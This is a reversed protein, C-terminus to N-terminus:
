LEFLQRANLGLQEMILVTTKKQLKAIQEVFSIIQLPTNRKDPSNYPAMSPSDTEILFHKIDVETVTKQLKKASPNMILGGIGLKYGLEIYSKALEPAGYFGHIVGGKPNPYKKLMALLQPHAKVAHLIVPLQWDIASALQAELLDLQSQSWHRLKDLGCEGLAVFRPNPRHKAILNNLAAVAQSIDAPVYWPHIGLAFYCDFESTVELQKAWSSESVGPIIVNDIGNARMKAFLAARDHDFDVLDLHAHTDIM